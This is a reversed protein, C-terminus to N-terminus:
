DEWGGPALRAHRRTKQKSCALFDHHGADDSEDDIAIGVVAGPRGHRARRLGSVDDCLGPMSSEKFTTSGFVGM